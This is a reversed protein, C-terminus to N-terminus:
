ISYLVCQCCLHSKIYFDLGSLTPGFFLFLQNHIMDPIEANDGMDVVPLRRKGVPQDLVGADHVVAIELVLDEVVHIDLPLPPDRDLALDDRKGVARLVAPAIGQVQDVRRAMDIEGVLHRPRQGGAFPHQQQDVGGLADLGLREGVEVEGHLVIQRDDRDDVLDIKGRRVDLPDDLLDVRLQTQIRVGMQFTGGLLSDPDFFDQLRDDLPDRRGLAIRLRREGRQDEVGLVVGEPSRHDVAPDEVPRHLGAVDDTQHVVIGGVPHFLDAM